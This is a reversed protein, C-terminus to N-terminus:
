KSTLLKEIKKYVHQDNGPKGVSDAYAKKLREFAAKDAGLRSMADLGATRAMWSTARDNIIEELVKLLDGNKFWKANETFEKKGAWRLGALGNWAPMHETRPTKKLRKLTLDYAKKSPTKHPVPASWMGVLGQFCAAYLSSDKKADRTLKDLLPLAREDARGGLRRCAIQQVRASKDNEVMAIAKELTGKTNAAWSSTMWTVAEMRVREEDHDAAKIILNRIAENKGIASGVSSLMAKYVIPDKEAAAAKLIVDQSSKGAGFLSGLLKAAQLRVAPSDHKIHKEGLGSLGGGMEKMLSRRNRRAQDYNRWAECKRDIGRDEVKCASLGLLLKEYDALTLTKGAAAPEVLAKADKLKDGLAGAQKALDKAAETKPKAKIAKETKPAKATPEDASPKGKDCGVALVLATSIALLILSKSNTM